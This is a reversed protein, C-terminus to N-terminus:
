LRSRGANDLSDADPSFCRRSAPMWRKRKSSTAVSLLPLEGEVAALFLEDYNVM